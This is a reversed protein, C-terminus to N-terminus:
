GLEAMIVMGNWSYFRGPNLIRTVPQPGNHIWYANEM